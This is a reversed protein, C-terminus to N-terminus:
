QFNIELERSNELRSLDILIDLSGGLSILHSTFILCFLFDM